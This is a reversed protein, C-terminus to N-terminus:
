HHVFQRASRIFAAATPNAGAAGDRWALAGVSPEADAVEIFAVGPRAYLRSASAPALGVGRGATVAELFEDLTDVVVSSNPEDRSQARPQAHAQWAPDRAATTVWPLGALDALYVRARDALPHDSPLLAVRPETYLTLTHLGTLVVPLRLVALDVEGVDLGAHTAAIPYHRLAVTVDPREARFADVVARISEHAARYGITLEQTGGALGRAQGRYTEAAEVVHRASAILDKGHPTLTVHRTGRQFLAFGLGSELKKIQQSLAPQSVHLVEAAATFTGADAVALFYRLLRVNPEM